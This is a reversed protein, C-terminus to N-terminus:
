RSKNRPFSGDIEKQILNDYDQALTKEVQKNFQAARRTTPITFFNTPSIGDRWIKLRIPFAANKPLGKIVCWKMLSKIFESKGSGKGKMGYYKSPKSGKDVFQGYSEMLFTLVFSDGTEKLKYRISDYLKGSAYKGNKKLRTEIESEVQNAYTTIYKKTIPYNSAM